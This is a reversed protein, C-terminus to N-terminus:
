AARAYQQSLDFGMEPRLQITGRDGDVIVRLGQELRSLLNPIEVVCPFGFSRALVAGHSFRGGKETIVALIRERGIFTVVQPTLEDSALVVREGTAMFDERERKLLVDLVVLWPDTVDAAHSRVSDGELNGFTEKVREILAQVAAEANIRQLTITEELEKLASPDQLIMRHVAFIEADKKGAQAAVLKQRRELAESTTELAEELRRTERPVEVGPISWTPVADARARVVDVPGLALGPSVSIGNIMGRRAM